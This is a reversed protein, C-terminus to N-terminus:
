TSTTLIVQILPIAQPPPHSVPTVLTRHSPPSMRFEAPPPPTSGALSDAVPPAPLSRSASDVVPRSPPSHSRRPPSTPPHPQRIPMEIQTDLVRSFRRRKKALRQPTGKTYETLGVYNEVFQIGDALSDHIGAWYPQEM